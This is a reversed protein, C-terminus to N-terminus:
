RDIGSLITFPHKIDLINEMGFEDREILNVRGTSPCLSSNIIFGFTCVDLSGYKANYKHLLM